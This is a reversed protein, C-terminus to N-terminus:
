DGDGRNVYFRNRPPWSELDGQKSVYYSDDSPRVGIGYGKWTQLITFAGPPPDNDSSYPGAGADRRAADSLEEDASATGIAVTAARFFNFEATDTRRVYVRWHTVNAVPAGGPKTHRRAQAVLVTTSSTIPSPSSEHDMVSDYWVYYAEFTGTVGAGIPAIATINTASTPKVFGLDFVTTGDYRKNQGGDHILANNKFFAARAANGATFGAGGVVATM